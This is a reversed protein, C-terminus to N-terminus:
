SPNGLLLPPPTGLTPQQHSSRSMRPQTRREAVHPVPPAAQTAPTATCASPPTAKRQSSNAATSKCSRTKSPTSNNLSISQTLSHNLLTLLTRMASGETKRFTCSIVSCTVNVTTCPASIVHRSASPISNVTDAEKNRRAWTLQYFVDYAVPEASTSLCVATVCSRAHRAVNKTRM